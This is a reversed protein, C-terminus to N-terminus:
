DGNIGIPRVLFGIRLAARIVVVALVLDRQLEPTGNMLRSSARASLRDALAEVETHSLTLNHNATSGLGEETQHNPRATTEVGRHPRQRLNCRSNL